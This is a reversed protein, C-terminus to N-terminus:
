NDPALMSSIVKEAVASASVQYTGAQLQSQISAVKDLRVDSVASTKAVQAAALSVEAKDRAPETSHSAGGQTTAEKVGKTAGSGAINQSQVVQTLHEISNRVNM